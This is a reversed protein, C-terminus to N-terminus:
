RTAILDGIQPLSARLQTAKRKTDALRYIANTRAGIGISTWVLERATTSLQRKYLSDGSLHDYEDFGRELAAQMVMAATVSGVSVRHDDVQALGWQYGLLRNHQAFAYDCGITVEGATVRSLAVHDPFAADIWERNFRAFRHSAFVGPEGIAQWRAQHLDCMEDFIEFARAKDTAWEIAIPGYREEILRMSRRIRKARDGGLASLVDKGSDRIAALDCIYTVIRQERAEPFQAIASNVLAPPFGDLRIEDQQPVSARLLRLTAGLFPTRLGEPALISNYQVRVTEHEPEGSTGLHITRVGFPGIRQGSGETVLLIGVPHDTEAIAFWYPALDGYNQLWARTWAWSTALDGTGVASEIQPWLTEGREITGPVLRVTLQGLRIEVEDAVAHSSRLQM